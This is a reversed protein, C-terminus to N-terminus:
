AVKKKKRKIKEKVLYKYLPHSEEPTKSNILDLDAKILKKAEESKPKPRNIIEYRDKMKQILCRDEIMKIINNLHENDLDSIRIKIGKGTTWFKM